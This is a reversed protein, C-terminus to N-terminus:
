ELNIVFEEYFMIQSVLDQLSVPLLLLFSLVLDDKSNETKKSYLICHQECYHDPQEM